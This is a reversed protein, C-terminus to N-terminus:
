EDVGQRILLLVLVLDGGVLLQRGALVRDREVELVVAAPHALAAGAREAHVALLHGLALDLARDAATEREVLREVDALVGARRDDFVVGLLHRELEGALEALEHDLQLLLEVARRAPRSRDRGLTARGDGKPSSEQSRSGRVESTVLM